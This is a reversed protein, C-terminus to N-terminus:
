GSRRRGGKRQVHQEVALAIQHQEPDSQDINCSGSHISVAEYRKNRPIM